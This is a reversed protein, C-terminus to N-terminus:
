SLCAPTVHLHDALRTAMAQLLATAQMSEQVQLPCAALRRRWCGRDKSGGSTCTAPLRCACRYMGQRGSRCLCMAHLRMGIAAGSLANVAGRM